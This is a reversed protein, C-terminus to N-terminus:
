MVNVMRLDEWFYGNIEQTKDGSLHCTGVVHSHLSIYTGMILSLCTQVCTKMVQPHLRVSVKCINIVIQRVTIWTNVKFHLSNMEHHLMKTGMFNDSRVHHAAREIQTGVFTPFCSWVCTSPPLEANIVSTWVVAWNTRVQVFLRVSFVLHGPQQECLPRDETFVSEVTQRRNISSM